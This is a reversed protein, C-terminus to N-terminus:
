GTVLRERGGEEGPSGHLGGFLLSAVDKVKAPDIIGAVGFHVFSPLSKGFELGAEVGIDDGVRGGSEM